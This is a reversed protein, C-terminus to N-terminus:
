MDTVDSRQDRTVDGDSSEAVTNSMDARYTGRSKARSEPWSGRYRVLDGHPRGRAARPAIPVFALWARREIRAVLAALATDSSKWRGGVFFELLRLSGHRRFRRRRFSAHLRRAARDLRTGTFLVPRDLSLDIARFGWLTASLIMVVRAPRHLSARPWM